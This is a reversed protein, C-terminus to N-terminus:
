FEDGVERHYRFGGAPDRTVRGPCGQPLHAPFLLTDTGAIRELMATRARSAEAYDVCYDTSWAPDVLQIPHHVMDGCFLARGGASEVEVCVNGPTHGAAPVLRIGEGVEADPAVVDLLGADQVPLVSDAVYDGLRALEARASDTTWFALEAATTLHRANPFTPVWASDVLTTGFGVHDVHLHTYVVTDIQDASAGARELLALWPDERRVFNPNPREKGNGIGLDVLVARGRGRVLFGGMDIALRGGEVYPPQWPWRDADYARTGVDPFFRAPPPFYHLQTLPVVDYDGLPIRRLPEAPDRPRSEPREIM